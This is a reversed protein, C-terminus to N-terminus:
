CSSNFFVHISWARWGHAVALETWTTNGFYESDMPKQDWYAMYGVEGLWRDGDHHEAGLVLCIAAKAVYALRVVRTARDAGIWDALRTGDLYPLDIAEKGRQGLLEVLARGHEIRRQLRRLVDLLRPRTVTVDVGPQERVPVEDEEDDSARIPPRTEAICFRWCAEEISEDAELCAATLKEAVNM